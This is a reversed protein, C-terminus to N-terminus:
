HLSISKTTPWLLLSAQRQHLYNILRLVATAGQPSMDRELSETQARQALSQIQMLAWRQEREIESKRRLHWRKLPVAFGPPATVSKYTQGGKKAKLQNDPLTKILKPEKKKLLFPHEHHRTHNHEARNHDPSYLPTHQTHQLNHSLQGECRLPLAASLLGLEM